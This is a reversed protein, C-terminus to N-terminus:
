ARQPQITNHRERVKTLMLRVPQTSEWIEEKEEETLGEQFDVWPDLPQDDAEDDGQVQKEYEDREEGELGDAIDALAQAVANNSVTGNPRNKAKPVDFQKIISKATISLIHLFCRTQNAPGPFDDLLLELKNIMM